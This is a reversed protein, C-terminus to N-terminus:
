KPTQVAACGADEYPCFRVEATANFTELEEPTFANPAGAPAHSRVSARVTARSRAAADQRLTDLSAELVADRGPAAADLNSWLVLIAKRQTAPPHESTWTATLARQLDQHADNLRRQAERRALKTRFVLSATMFTSMASTPAAVYGFRGVLGGLRETM